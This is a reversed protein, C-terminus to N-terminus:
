ILEGRRARSPCEKIMLRARLLEPSATASTLPRAGGKELCFLPHSREIIDAIEQYTLHPTSVKRGKRFRDFEEYNLEVHEPYVYPKLIMRQFGVEKALQYIESLVVDRELVGYQKMANISQPTKSHESGPESFTVRGGPRLVRYMEALTARYTPMHHLANMCIIGDFSEDRFPLRMGDGAVFRTRALDCRPDLALRERGIALIEPDLDFAM